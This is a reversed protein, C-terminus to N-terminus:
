FHNIISYIIINRQADNDKSNYIFEKYFGVKKLTDIFFSNAQYRIIPVSVKYFNQSQIFIAIDKKLSLLACKIFISNTISCIELKLTLSKNQLPELRFIAIEKIEDKMFSAYVYKSYNFLSNKFDVENFENINFLYSLYYEDINEIDTIKLFKLVKNADQYQISKHILSM